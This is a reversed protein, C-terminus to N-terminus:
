SNDFVEMSTQRVLASQRTESTPKSAEKQWASKELEAIKWERNQSGM